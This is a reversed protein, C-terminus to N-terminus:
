KMRITAPTLSTPRFEEQCMNNDKPRIGFYLKGDKDLKVLDHDIPCDKVSKWVSCGSISIDKEVTPQLGCNSLGFAQALGKDQTLLTVFKKDEKFNAEYSQPQNESPRLIEYSGLTRFRFVKNDLKPDLALVFDLTWSGNKFTFERKGYVGQGYEYPVPDVYTGNLAKLQNIELQSNQNSQCAVIGLILMLILVVNALTRKTKCNNTAITTIPKM